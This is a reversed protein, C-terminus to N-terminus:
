KAAPAPIIVKMTQDSSPLMGSATVRVTVTSTMAQGCAKPRAMGKTMAMEVSRAARAPTKILSRIANSRIRVMSTTRKSLVPVKVFPSGARVSVAATAPTLWSSNNASAAATSDSLSCGTARAMTAAAIFAPRVGRDAAPKWDMVPRPTCAM